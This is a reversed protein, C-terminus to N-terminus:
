TNYAQKIRKNNPDNYWGAFLMINGQKVSEEISPTEANVAAVLFSNPLLTRHEPSLLPVEKNTWTYYPATYKFHEFDRHEPIILCDPNERALAACVDWPILNGGKSADIGAAGPHVNSDLYFLTCGWRTKAYAIKRRLETIPSDVSVQRPEGNIWVIRTPRICIGIRAPKFRTFYEDALADMEPAFTPLLEPDGIYSIPHPWEQSEVDWLIMGQANMDRIIAVTRDADAMLNERNFEFRWRKNGPIHQNDTSALYIAAIPRRDPWNLRWEPVIVPPVIIVPPKKKKGGGFLSALFALLQKM